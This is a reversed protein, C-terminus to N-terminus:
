RYGEFGSYRGRLLRTAVRLNDTQRLRTLVPLGVYSDVEDERSRVIAPVNRESDGTLSVSDHLYAAGFTKLDNIGREYRRWFASERSGETDDSLAHISSQVLAMVGNMVLARVVKYAKPSAVTDVSTTVGMANLYGDVEGEIMSILIEAEAETLAGDTGVRFDKILAPLESTTLYNGM